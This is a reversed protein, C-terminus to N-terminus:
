TTTGSSDTAVVKTQNGNADFSQVSVTKAGNPSTQSQTLVRAADDYVNSISTGSSMAGVTPRGSSDWATYTVTGGPSMTQTLRRKTDYSYTETASVSRCARAIRTS